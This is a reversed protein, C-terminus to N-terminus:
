SHNHIIPLFTCYMIWSSVNTIDDNEDGVVRVLEQAQTQAQAPTAIVLLLITVIPVDSDDVNGNGFIFTRITSNSGSGSCIHICIIIIVIFLYSVNSIHFSWNHMVVVVIIKKGSVNCQEKKCTINWGITVNVHQNWYWLKKLM